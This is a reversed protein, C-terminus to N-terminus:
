HHDSFTRQVALAVVAAAGSVAVADEILACVLDPLLGNQVAHRRLHYGLFAGGIAAFGGLIGGAAVSRRKASCIAAGCLAGSVIRAALPGPDTRKPIFPLKDAVIEGAALLMLVSASVASGLIKLGSGGMPLDRYAAARSVIAPATMSRLGAMLGIASSASYVALPEMNSNSYLLASIRASTRLEPEAANRSSTYISGIELIRMGTSKESRDRLM